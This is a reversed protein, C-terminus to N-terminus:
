SQKEYEEFVHKLLKDLSCITSRFKRKKFTYFLLLLLFSLYVFLYVFYLRVCHFDTNTAM